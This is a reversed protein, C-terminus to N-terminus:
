YISFYQFKYQSFNPIYVYEKKKLIKLSKVKKVDQFM